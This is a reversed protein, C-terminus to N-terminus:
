ASETYIRMTASGTAILSGDPATLIGEAFAVSKGAHVIRGEASLTGPQAAGIFNVKMELTARPSQNEALSSRVAASIIMDLMAALIGGMIPGKPNRFAEKADFEARVVGSEESVLKWGLLDAVDSGSWTSEVTV